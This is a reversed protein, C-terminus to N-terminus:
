SNGPPFCERRSLEKYLLPSGATPAQSTKELVAQDDAPCGRSLRLPSRLGRGSRPITVHHCAGAIHGVAGPIQFHGKCPLLLLVSKQLCLFDNPCHGEWILRPPRWSSERPAKVVSPVWAAGVDLQAICQPMPTPHRGWGAALVGLSGWVSTGWLRGQQLGQPSIPAPLVLGPGQCLCHHPWSHLPGAHATTPLSM